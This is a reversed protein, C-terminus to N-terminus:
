GAKIAIIDFNENTWSIADLENGIFLGNSLFNHKIIRTDLYYSEIGIAYIAMGNLNDTHEISKVIVAENNRLEITDGVYVQSLDIGDIASARLRDKKSLSETETRESYCAEILAFDMLNAEAGKEDLLRVTALIKASIEPSLGIELNRLAKQLLEPTAKM